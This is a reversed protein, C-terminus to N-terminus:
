CFSSNSNSFFNFIINVIQMRWFYKLQIEANEHSELPELLLIGEEVEFRKASHGSVNLYKTRGIWYL